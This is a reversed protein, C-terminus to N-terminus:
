SRQLVANKLKKEFLIFFTFSTCFFTYYLLYLINYLHYFGAKQYLTYWATLPGVSDYKALPGNGTSLKHYFWLPDTIYKQSNKVLGTPSWHFSPPQSAGSPTLGGVERFISCQGNWLCIKVFKHELSDSQLSTVTYLNHNSTFCVQIVM